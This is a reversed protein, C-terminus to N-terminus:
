LEGKNDWVKHFADIVDNLSQVDAGPGYLRHIIITNEEAWEVGDTSDPMFFDYHGDQFPPFTYLPDIYGLRIPVGEADFHERGKVPRLEAKVAEVFRHKNIKRAGENLWQLALVYYTHTCDPRIPAPKLCPIDKLGERLYEANKVRKDVLESSRTVQTYAIAAQLETMRNNLGILEGHEYRLGQIQMDHNVAEAHNIILRLREALADSDTVVVGGEGATFHKGLNFSFVGMDGITGAYRDRYKAGWAQAADEIVICGSDLALIRPDFVQGFLSVAIIASPKNDGKFHGAVSDCDICYYDREIDAFAPVAGLLIPATASCSMSYPSVVVIDDAGIGAALLATYIGNTASNIAVAHKVKYRKEIERELMNVWKGGFTAKSWNGQYGTLLGSDMVDSVARKEADTITNQPPLPETRIPTGGNIALKM